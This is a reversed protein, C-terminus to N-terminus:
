CSPIQNYSGADGAQTVSGSRFVIIENNFLLILYRLSKASHHNMM